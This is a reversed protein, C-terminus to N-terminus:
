LVDGVPRRGLAAELDVVREILEAEAAALEEVVLDRHNRRAELDSTLAATALTASM